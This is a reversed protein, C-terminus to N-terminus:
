KNEQKKKKLSYYYNRCLISCYKKRGFYSKQIEFKGCGNCIFSKGIFEADILARAKMQHEKCELSNYKAYEPFEKLKEAAQKLAIDREDKGHLSIGVNNRECLKEHLPLSVVGTGLNFGAARKFDDAQIGHAKNMHLSLCDGIWDCGEILCRLEKNTLFEDYAQPLAITQPNAIWRDFRKSMYMRYCKTSCYKKVRSPKSYFEVGCEVCNKYIGTKNGPRGTNADISKKFAKAHNEKFLDSALYCKMNCFKAERRSFFMNGCYQCPGREPIKKKLKIGQGAHRCIKSCYINVNEEYIKRRYQSRGGIFETRCHACVLKGFAKELEKSNGTKFLYSKNNM